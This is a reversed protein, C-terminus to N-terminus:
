KYKELLYDMLAASEPWTTKELTFYKRAEENSTQEAMMMGLDCYVGPPVPTKYKNTSKDIIDNLTKIFGDRSVDDHVKVQNYLKESYNSYFLTKPKALCNSSIVILVILLIVYKTNKM